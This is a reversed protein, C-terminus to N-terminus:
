KLEIVKTDNEGIIYLNKGYIFSISGIIDYRNKKMELTLIM